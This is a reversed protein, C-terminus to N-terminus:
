TGAWFDKEHAAGFLFFRRVAAPFFIFVGFFRRKKRIRRRVPFLVAAPRM